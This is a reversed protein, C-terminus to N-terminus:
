KKSGTIKAYVDYYNGDHIIKVDKIGEMNRLVDQAFIKAGSLSLEGDNNNENTRDSEKLCLEGNYSMLDYGERFLEEPRKESVEFKHEITIM